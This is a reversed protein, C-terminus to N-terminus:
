AHVDWLIKGKHVIRYIDKFPFYVPRKGKSNASQIAYTPALAHIDPNFHTVVYRKITKGNVMQLELPILEDHAMSLVDMLSEDLLSTAIVLDSRKDYSATVTNGNKGEHISKDPMWIDSGLISTMDDYSFDHWFPSKPLGKDSFASFTVLSFDGYCGHRHDGVGSKIYHQIVTFESVSIEKDFIKLDKIKQEIFCAADEITNTVSNGRDIDTVAAVIRGYIDGTGSGVQVGRRDSSTMPILWIRLYASYVVKNLQIADYNIHGSFIPDQGIKVGSPILVTPVTLEM